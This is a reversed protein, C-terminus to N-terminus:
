RAGSGFDVLNKQFQKVPKSACGNVSLMRKMDRRADDYPKTLSAVWGLPNNIAKLMEGPLNGLRALMQQADLRNQVSLVTPDAYRGTGREAWGSCYRNREWGNVSEVTETTCYQEMIQVRNAPLYASCSEWFADVYGGVLADAEVSDQGFSVNGFEGACILQVDTSYTLGEVNMGCVAAIRQREKELAAAQAALLDATRQEALAALRTAAPGGDLPSSLYRSVIGTVDGRNAANAIRGSIESETSALLSARTTALDAFAECGAVGGPLTSYLANMSHYKGKLADLGPLGAPLERVAARDAACRTQTASALAVNMRELQAARVEASAHNWLVVMSLGTAPAPHGFAEVADRLKEADKGDSSALFESVASEFLPSATRTRAAAVAASFAAQRSPWDDGLVNKSTDEAAQYLQWSAAVPQAAAMERLTTNRWGDMARMSLVSLTVGSAMVPSPISIVRFSSDVAKLVGNAREEPFNGRPMPISQIAQAYGNLDSPSLEDFAKGFYPKFSADQFLNRSKSQIAGLTVRMADVDPYETLFQQAWAQLKDTSKGGIGFRGGIVGLASGGARGQALASLKTVFARQAVADPALVFYPNDLRGAARGGIVGRARDYVGTFTPVDAGLTARASAAPTLTFLGSVADYQVTAPVVGMPGTMGIQRTPVLTELRLQIETPGGTAWGSPLQFTMRTFGHPQYVGTWGGGPPTSSAPPTAATAMTAALLSLAVLFRAITKM